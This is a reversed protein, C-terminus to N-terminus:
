QGHVASGEGTEGIVPNRRIFGALTVAGTVLFLAALLWLLKRVEGYATERLGDQMALTLLLGGGVSAALYVGFRKLGATRWVYLFGGALFLGVFLPLWRYGGLPAGFGRTLLHLVLVAGGVALGYGFMGALVRGPKDQPLSASGARPTVWRDRLKPLAWNLGMAALLMMFGWRSLLTLAGTALLVGILIEAIGDEFPHKRAAKAM